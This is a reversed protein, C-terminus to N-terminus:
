ENDRAAERDVDLARLGQYEIADTDRRAVGLRYGIVVGVPPAVILLALLVHTM